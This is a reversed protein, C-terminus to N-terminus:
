GFIGRRVLNAGAVVLVVLTANRFVDPDLRDGLWFGVQMGLYAPIMLVASLGVTEANLVGSHLHGLLLSVSGLGYVVGQVLMQRAKPTELAVLYLVTPPGWTGTLGGLGGALAGVGWEALRRRRADHGHVHCSTILKEHDSFLNSVTKCPTCAAVLSHGFVGQM